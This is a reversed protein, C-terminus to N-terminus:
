LHSKAGCRGATEVPWFCTTIRVGVMNACSISIKVTNTSQKKLYVNPMQQNRNQAINSANDSILAIKWTLILYLYSCRFFTFKARPLVNNGLSKVNADSSIELTWVTQVWEENLLSISSTKCSRFWYELFTSGAFWLM